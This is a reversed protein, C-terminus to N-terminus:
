NLIFEKLQEESLRGSKAKIQVEEELLVTHPIGKVKYEGTINDPDNDVDIEIFTIEESKLEQKIMEFIPAYVRCPGCGNSYFKLVTKKM